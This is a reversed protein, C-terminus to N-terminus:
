SGMYGKRAHIEYEPHHPVTVTVTHWGNLAVGSAVYQLLYSQRFQGIISKFARVADDADHVAGGTAGAAATIAARDYLPALKELVSGMVRTNWLVAHLVADSRAAVHEVTEGDGVVSGKNTGTAFVVLLHRRGIEPPRALGFLLADFLCWQNLRPNHLFTLEDKTAQGMHQRLTVSPLSPDLDPLEGLGEAAQMPIIERVDAAFVVVQVRDGERALRIIQPLAGQLNRGITRQGFTSQDFLLSLDLPIRDMPKVNIMQLVGNDRLQFDQAALDSVMAGHRQVSVDISVLNIGSRFVPAQQFPAWAIAGSAYVSFSLAVAVRWGTRRKM